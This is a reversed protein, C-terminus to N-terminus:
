RALNILRSDVPGVWRLFFAIFISTGHKFLQWIYMNITAFM